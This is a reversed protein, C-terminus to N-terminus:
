RQATLPSVAVGSIGFKQILQAVLGSAKVDEVFARLYRAGEDHGKPIAVAQGIVMFRGDLIRSGPLKAAVRVIQQRVSALVDAKGAMLLEAAGNAGPVREIRAHRLSRTLQLDLSSKASVAVRIGDRDVDDISRVTSGAPVLYVGDSEVYPATMTVGAQQPDYGSFAVDWGGNQLGVLMAATTEYGVLEVPVEIRRGLERALDVAIGSLNRTAPDRVSVVPNTYMTGVRLRGDRALDTLASQLVFPTTGCSVLLAALVVVIVCRIMYRNPFKFASKM